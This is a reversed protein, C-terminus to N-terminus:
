TRDSGSVESRRGADTSPLVIELTSSPGAPRQEIPVVMSRHAIMRIGMGTYALLMVVLPLMPVVLFITEICLKQTNRGLRMWFAPLWSVMTREIQEFPDIWEMEVCTILALGLCIIIGGYGYLKCKDTLNIKVLFRLKCVPCYFKSGPYILVWGVSIRAEHCHPCQLRKRGSSFMSERGPPQTTPSQYPNEM